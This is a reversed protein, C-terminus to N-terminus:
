ETGFQMDTESFPRLDEFSFGPERGILFKSAVEDFLRQDVNKSLDRIQKRLNSLLDPTPKSIKQENIFRSLRSEKRQSANKGKPKSKHYGVFSHMLAEQCNWLKMKPSLTKKYATNINESAMVSQYFKNTRNELFGLSVDELPAIILYFLTPKFIEVERSFCMAFCTAFVCCLNNETAVNIKRIGEALV